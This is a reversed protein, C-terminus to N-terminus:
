TAAALAALIRRAAEKGRAGIEGVPGVCSPCGAECGCSDLMEATRAVLEGALRFLPESQGVGGPYNDYLYLNPEFSKLGSAIDETLAVGLDHPDCMLLLSAVARLANGLGTLGNQREAPALDPFQSLFAEPFHLWFATTHMEQEPMSLHGAGVNELTYFKVKKFGVVQRNVRVEGHAAAAGNLVRSDFEDLVKVQTYDIADTFYDSDVQRVYAKRGDYDFKEVQYQRAEHLYIAKEHLTTLATPFSVEAIVQHEGTIDVVVFNDSSVARLSVADAPYTDSTWHWCGASHHLLGAEEGLFRCLETTDHPGFREQDHIPLEFAACKLHSVLIELNDANIHAHEPSSDFFYDPHEIIYQDLPASSAVM